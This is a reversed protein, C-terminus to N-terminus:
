AGGLMRRLDAPDTVPANCAFEECVYATARGALPKMEVLWPARQALWAQGAGGDAALLLRRPGLTEHLVAALARFDKAQPDGALVVHRPPEFALALACLMQPMAQPARSWQARFAEVGHLGRARLSEVNLMGALRFLNMAAVSSAAPDAGDYDERLRLM